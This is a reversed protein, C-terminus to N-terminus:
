KTIYKEPNVAKRGKRLSFHLQPFSATGTSGITAITEGQSVNQNKSVFTEDSHAYATLWNNSHKIIILNGYGRLESGVYVVKGSATVKIPTGLPAKINVGDNHTGNSKPGFKQIVQGNEVPWIFSTKKSIKKVASSIKKKTKKVINTPAASSETEANFPLVLIEGTRVKYNRAVNNVNALESLSINYDRSIFTLNEGSQVVHTKRSVPIKLVNGPYITYPPTLNNHDILGRTTLKHKRALSYLTDGKSVLITNAKKTPTLKSINSKSPKSIVTKKASPKNNVADKTFYLHGKYTVSAAKQDCAALFVFSLLIIKILYKM